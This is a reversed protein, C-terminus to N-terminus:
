EGIGGDSGKAHLRVRHLERADGGDLHGERKIGTKSIWRGLWLSKTAGTSDSRGDFDALLCPTVDGGRDLM